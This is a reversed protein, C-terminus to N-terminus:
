LVAHLSFIWKGCKKHVSLKQELSACGVKTLGAEQSELATKNAPLQM